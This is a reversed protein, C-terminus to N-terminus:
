LVIHKKECRSNVQIFYQSASENVATIGGDPHQRTISVLWCSVCVLMRVFRASCNGFATSLIKNLYTKTTFFLM